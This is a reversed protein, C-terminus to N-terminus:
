AGAIALATIMAEIEEEIIRLFLVELANFIDTRAPQGPHDVAGFAFRIGFRTWSLARKGPGPRIPHRPAGFFVYDAHPIGAGIAIDIGRASPHATLSQALRPPSSQWGGLKSEVLARGQKQMRLAIRGKVMEIESPYAAAFERLGEPTLSITIVGM